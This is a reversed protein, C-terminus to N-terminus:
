VKRWEGGKGSCPCPVFEDDEPQRNDRKRLGSGKCACEAWRWGKYLLWALCWQESTYFLLGIIDSKFGEPYAELIECLCKVFCEADEIELERATDLSGPWNPVLRNCGGEPPTGYLLDDLLHLDTWGLVEAIEWQVRQLQEPTPNM